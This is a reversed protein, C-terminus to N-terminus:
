RRQGMSKRFPYLLRGKADWSFEAGTYGKRIEVNSDECDPCKKPADDSITFVRYGNGIPTRCNFCTLVQMVQTYPPDGVRERQLTYTKGFGRDSTSSKQVIAGPPESNTWAGRSFRPFM